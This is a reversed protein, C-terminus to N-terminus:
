SGAGLLDVRVSLEARAPMGEAAPLAALRLAGWRLNPLAQELAALDDTLDAYSGALTFEVGQRRLAADAPAAERPVTALRVLTLRERRRLARELVDPLREIDHRSASLRAIEGHLDAVSRRAAAIDARLAQAAQAPADGTGPLAGSRQQLQTRLVGVEAAERALQEKAAQYRAWLPAVWLADALAAIASLVALFIFVRERLSLADIRAAHRQWAANM